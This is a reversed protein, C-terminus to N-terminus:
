RAPSALEGTGIAVTGLSVRRLEDTAPSARGEGGLFCLLVIVLLCPAVMNTAPASSATSRRTSWTGGHEDDADPAATSRSAM